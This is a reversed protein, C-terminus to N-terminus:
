KIKKMLSTQKIHSIEQDLDRIIEMVEETEVVMDVEEMDMIEEVEV